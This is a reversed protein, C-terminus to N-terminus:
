ITSARARNGQLVKAFTREDSSKLRQGTFLINVLDTVKKRIFMKIHEIALEPFKVGIM